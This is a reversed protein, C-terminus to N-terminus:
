QSISKLSSSQARFSPKSEIASRGSMLDNVFQLMEIRTPRDNVNDSNYLVQPNRAQDQSISALIWVGPWM